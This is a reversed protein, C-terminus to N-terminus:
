LTDSGEHVTERGMQPLKDYYTPRPTIGGSSSHLSEVLPQQITVFTPQIEVSMGIFAGFPNHQFYSIKELWGLYPILIEPFFATTKWSIRSGPVTENILRSLEFVSFFRAHAYVNTPNFRAHILRRTNSLSYRNLVGMLVKKRAVRFAEEVAKKQDDVFELTTILAVVDFENDDFPLDEAVGRYFSARNGIKERAIDLMYPSPELGTVYYGLDCFWELFIGTGCGVELLREGPLPKLFSRLLHKELNLIERGVASEFWRDYNRANEFDFIYGVAKGKLNEQRFPNGAPCEFFYKLTSVRSCM